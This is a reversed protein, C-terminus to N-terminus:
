PQLVPGTFFHLSNQTPPAAPRTTRLNSRPLWAAVCVEPPKRQLNLQPARWCAVRARRLTETVVVAETSLQFQVIVEFPLLEHEASATANL